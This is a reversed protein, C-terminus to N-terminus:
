HPDMEHPVWAHMKTGKHKRSSVKLGGGIAELRERLTVLGLGELGHIGRGNDILELVVRDRRTSVTLQVHDAEAHKRVNMLGEGAAHILASRAVDSILAESGPEVQVEIRLGTERETLNALDDIASELNLDEKDGGHLLRLEARLKRDMDRVISELHLLEENTAADHKPTKSRTAQLGYLLRYLPQGIDDHLAGVTRKREEEQSRFLSSLLREAQRRRRNMIRASAVTLTAMFVSLIGVGSLIAVWVNRQIHSRLDTLQDVSQEVELLGLLRGSDTEVPVYFEILEGLDREGSHAPDSLDSIHFQTEGDLAATAPASLGFQQGVLDPADSYLITGQVSWLKVRVTEGGVLRRQM